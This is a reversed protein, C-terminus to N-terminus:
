SSYFVWVCRCSLQYECVRDRKKGESRWGIHPMCKGWEYFWRWLDMGAGRSKRKIIKCRVMYEPVPLRRQDTRQSNFVRRDVYQLSGTIGANSKCQIQRVSKSRELASCASATEM